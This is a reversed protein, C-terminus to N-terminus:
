RVWGAYAEHLPPGRTCLRGQTACTRPACGAGGGEAETDSWPVPGSDTERLGLVPSRRAEQTRGLWPVVDVVVCEVPGPVSTSWSGPSGFEVPPGAVRREGDGRTGPLRFGELEALDCSVNSHM